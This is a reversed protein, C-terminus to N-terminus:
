GRALRRATFSKVRSNRRRQERRERERFQSPSPLAPESGAFDFSFFLNGEFRGTPQHVLGVTVGFKTPGVKVANAGLTFEYDSYKNRLSKMFSATIDHRVLPKLSVKTGVQVDHQHANHLYNGVFSLWKAAPQEYQISKFADGFAAGAGQPHDLNLGVIRASLSGGTGPLDHLLIGARVMPVNIKGVTLGGVDAGVLLKYKPVGVGVGFFGGTALPKGPAQKVQAEGTLNLNVGGKSLVRRNLLLDTIYYGQGYEGYHQVRMEPVAAKFQPNPATDAHATRPALAGATLLAATAFATLKKATVRSIM